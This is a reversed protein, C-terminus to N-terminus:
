NRENFEEDQAHSCQLKKQFFPLCAQIASNDGHYRQLYMIISKSEISSRCAIWWTSFCAKTYWLGLLFLAIPDKQQLLAKFSSQMHHIFMWVVPTNMQENPIRLISFVTHVAVFYPNRDMTSSMDLRCLEVIEPPISDLEVTAFPGFLGAFVNAMSHFVSDPRTPDTLRWLSMKGDGMRLWALDSPESPRMPWAEEPTVANISIM